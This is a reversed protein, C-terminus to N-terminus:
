DGPIAEVSNPESARLRFTRENTILVTRAPPNLLYEAGRAFIAPDDRYLGLIDNCTRCLLGRVENTEHNHDVSLRRTKGSRGSRPGCIACVGNQAAYIKWYDGPELAYVAQVRKEHAAARRAHIVARHHTACRPGPHPVPRKATIGSTLCDKCAPQAAQTTRPPM